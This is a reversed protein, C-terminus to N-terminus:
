VHRVRSLTDCSKFWVGHPGHWGNQGLWPSHTLRDGPSCYVEANASQVCTAICAQSDKNRDATIHM